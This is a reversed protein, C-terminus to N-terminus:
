QLAEWGLLHFLLHRFYHIGQPNPYLLIAVGNGSKGPLKYGSRTFNNMVSLSWSCIVKWMVFYNCNSCVNYM